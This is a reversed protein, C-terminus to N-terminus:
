RRGPSRRARAGSSSWPAPAARGGTSPPWAAGSGPTAPAPAFATEGRVRLRPHWGLDRIRQWLRPSCLGRDTLVLVTLGGPVAPRLLRLLRLLHPPWAGPQNAPLPHRAVPIACGRYLVSAVLAVWRDGPPTADVALALSDGRWWRLAWRLLPAFCAAVDLQTHRPAGKDAGAYTWERLAQRAGAGAGFVPLAALAASQCASQALIAGYVWWALGRRQAPRLHPLHAAITAQMQYWERPCRM